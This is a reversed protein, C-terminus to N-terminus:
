SGSSQAAIFNQVIIKMRKSLLCSIISKMLDLSQVSLVEHNHPFQKRGVEVYSLLVESTSWYYRM